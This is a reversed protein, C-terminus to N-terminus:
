LKIFLSIISLIISTGIALKLKLQLKKHANQARRLRKILMLRRSRDIDRQQKLAILARSQMDSNTKLNDLYGNHVSTNHNIVSKIEEIVAQIPALDVKEQIIIQDPTVVREPGEVQVEKIVERDVYQIESKSVVKEVPRDVYQIQPQVVSSKNTLRIM